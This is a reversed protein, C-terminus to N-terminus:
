YHIALNYTLINHHELACMRYSLKAFDASHPFTINWTTATLRCEKNISSTLINCVISLHSNALSIMPFKSICCQSKKYCTVSVSINNARYWLM